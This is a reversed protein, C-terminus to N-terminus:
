EKGTTFRHGSVDTVVADARGDAFYIRLPDDKKLTGAETVRRGDAGTVYGYGAKLRTLPSRGNLKEAAIALRQRNENLRAQMGGSLARRNEPIRQRTRKLILRMRETLVEECRLQRMKLDRIRAEPSRHSLREKQFELRSRADSLRGAMLSYLADRATMLEERFSAYEFVTLEAAASPTPARLDAVFDTITFDTEHGVASVVPIGCDFVARALAEDNFAWLDEMSGGGRGLIIVDVGHAELMRLGKILSQPAGEGQVLSPYLVIQLYPNRRTAIQIIDRVAAGTAATVIGLRRIYRPLPRKYEESFLGEEELQAKLKLFREYLEGAGEQEIGYAYFQYRGGQPWVDVRGTVRVKAGNELRFSLGGRDQAFMVCSLQGDKDKLTFYIHGSPHYTCNSVEGKVTLSRLMADRRLLDRIYRNVQSVTFVEAM